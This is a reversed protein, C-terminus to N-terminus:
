KAYIYIYKIDMSRMMMRHNNLPATCAFRFFLPCKCACCGFFFNFCRRTKKKNQNRGREALRPHRPPNGISSPGSLAFLWLLMWTSTFTHSFPHTIACPPPSPAFALSPIPQAPSGRGWLLLFFSAFLFALSICALYSYYVRVGILWLWIAYAFIPPFLLPNDASGVGFSVPLAGPM